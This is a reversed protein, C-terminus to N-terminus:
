GGARKDRDTREAGRAGTERFPAVPPFCVLCFTISFFLPYFCGLRLWLALEPPSRPGPRPPVPGPLRSKGHPSFNRRERASIAAELQPQQLKKRSRERAWRSTGAARFPEARCDEAQACVCVYMRARARATTCARM